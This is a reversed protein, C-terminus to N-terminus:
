EISPLCEESDVRRYRTRIIKGPRAPPEPSSSDFLRAIGYLVRDLSGQSSSRRNKLKSAVEVSEPDPCMNSMSDIDLSPIDEPPTVIISPATTTTAKGTATTPVFHPAHHHHGPAHPYHRKAHGVGHGATPFSPIKKITKKPTNNISSSIQISKLHYRLAKRRSITLDEDDVEEKNVDDDGDESKSDIDDYDSNNADYEGEQENESASFEEDELESQKVKKLKLDGLTAAKRVVLQSSTSSGEDVKLREADLPKTKGLTHASPRWPVSSEGKLKRKLKNLHRMPTPSRKRSVREPIKVGEPFIFGVSKRPENSM